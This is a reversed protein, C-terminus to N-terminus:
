ISYLYLFYVSRILYFHPFYQILLTENYVVIVTVVTVATVVTLGTVVLLLVDVMLYNEDYVVIKDSEVNGVNGVNGLTAESVLM